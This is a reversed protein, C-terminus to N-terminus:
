EHLKMVCIATVFKSISCAPFLTNEDVAIRSEKDAFGHYEAAEKGAADVWACGTGPFRDIVQQEM